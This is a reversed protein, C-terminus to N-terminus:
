KLKLQYNGLYVDKCNTKTANGSKKQAARENAAHLQGIEQADFHGGKAHPSQTLSQTAHTSHVYFHGRGCQFQTLIHGTLQLMIHHLELRLLPRLLRRFVKFPPLALREGM